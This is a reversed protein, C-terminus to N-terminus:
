NNIQQPAQGPFQMFVQGNEPIIWSLIVEGAIVTFDRGATFGGRAPSSWLARYSGPALEFSIETNADLTIQQGGGFNGGSLTLTANVNALSHNGSVLLARGLPATYGTIIPAPTVTAPPTPGAQSVTLQDYVETSSLGDEPVIWMVMVKGAVATFDAGSVFHGRAPSSWLARYDDPELVLQVENNPVVDIERGGGVSKGGSLTLRAPQNTISRNSVILLTKFEPARIVTAPIATPTPTNTPGAAPRPTAALPVNATNSATAFDPDASVWGLGGPVADFRIQWWQGQGLKAQGMIEAEDGQRLQGIISYQTGPGARVNLRPINVTLGAPSSTPTPPLPSPSATPTNTPTPSPPLPTITPTPTNSAEPTPTDSDGVVTVTAVDAITAIATITAVTQINVLGAQNYARIELSYDDPRPPSWRFVATLSTTSQALPNDVQDVKRGNVWLELRTIGAPDSAIAQM